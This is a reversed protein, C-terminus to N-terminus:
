IRMGRSQSQAVARTESISRAMKIEFSEAVISMNQGLYKEALHERVQAKVDEKWLNM